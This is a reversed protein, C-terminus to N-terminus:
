RQRFSRGPVSYRFGSSYSWITTGFGDSPILCRLAISTLCGCELAKKADKFPSLWRAAGLVANCNVAERALDHSNQPSRTCRARPVQIGCRETAAGAVIEVLAGFHKGLRAGTAGVQQGAGVNDAMGEVEELGPLDVFIARFGLGEVVDAPLLEADIGVQAEVVVRVQGIQRAPCVGVLVLQAAVAAQQMDFFARGRGAQVVGGVRVLEACVRGALDDRDGARWRQVGVLHHHRRDRVRYPKPWL